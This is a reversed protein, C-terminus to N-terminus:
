RWCADGGGLDVAPKGDDLTSEPTSHPDTDITMSSPHRRTAPLRWVHQRRQAPLVPLLIAERLLVAVSTGVLRASYGLVVMSAAVRPEATGLRVGVADVLDAVALHAGGVAALDRNAPACLLDAPTGNQDDVEMGLLANSRGSRRVSADVEGAAV